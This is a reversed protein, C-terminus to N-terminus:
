SEHCLGWYVADIHIRAKDRNKGPSRCNTSRCNTSRCIPSTLQDCRWNPAVVILRLTSNTAHKVCVHNKKVEWLYCNVCMHNLWVACSSPSPLMHFIFIRKMSHIHLHDRQYVTVSYQCEGKPYRFTVFLHFSYENYFLSFRLLYFGWLLSCHYPNYSIKLAVAM